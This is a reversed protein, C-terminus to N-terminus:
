YEEAGRKEKRKDEVCRALTKYLERDSKKRFIMCLSEPKERKRPKNKHEARYTKQYKKQYARIKEKHELYYQKWYDKNKDYNHKNYKKRTTMAITGTRISLTSVSFRAGVGM